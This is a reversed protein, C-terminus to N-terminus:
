SYAHSGYERDDFERDSNRFFGITGLIFLLLLLVMGAIPIYQKWTLADIYADWSQGSQFKRILGAKGALGWVAAFTGALTAVLMLVNWMLRSFGRPRRDGLISRSNMVLFFTYYAIPILATGIVSTPIALAAKADGTWLVPALFGGIGAVLCGLMHVGRNGPTGFLECFAFGNILMLIIITSIAMGLVGVGFVKQAVFNGALPKLANALNFNDRNAIMAALKKDADTLAAEHGSERAGLQKSYAAKMKPFVEGAAIVTGDELTTEAAAIIDDTQGHFQSGSAIV